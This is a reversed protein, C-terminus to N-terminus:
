KEDFYKTGSPRVVQVRTGAPIEYGESFEKKGEGVVKGGSRYLEPFGKEQNKTYPATESSKYEQIIINGDEDTAIGDVRIKTGEGENTVITIEPQANEYKQAFENFKKDAFVKGQKGREAWRESAEKWELPPDLSKVLKIKVKVILIM